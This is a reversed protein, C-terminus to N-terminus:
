DGLYVFMEHLKIYFFIKLHVSRFLCKELSSMLIPMLCMFLHEIDSIILSIYTLVITLFWRMITLIDMILFDVFSVYQLPQPSLPVRRRKQYSPLNPCGSHFVTWLNRLFRFISSSYSGSIGSRPMDLFFMIWFSVHVRINVAASNVIALVHLCGNCIM